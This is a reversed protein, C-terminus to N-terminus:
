DRVKGVLLCEPCYYFSFTIWFDKRKNLTPKKWVEGRLGEAKCGSCIAEHMHLVTAKRDFRYGRVRLEYWVCDADLPNWKKKLTRGDVICDM